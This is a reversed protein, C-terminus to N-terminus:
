GESPATAYNKLPMTNSGCYIIPSSLSRSRSNDYNDHAHPGKRLRREGVGLLPSLM